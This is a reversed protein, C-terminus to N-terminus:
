HVEYVDQLNTNRRSPTESQERGRWMVAASWVASKERVCEDTGKKRASTPLKHLQTEPLETTRRHGWKGIADAPSIYAVDAM